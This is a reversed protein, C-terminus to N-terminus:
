VQMKFQGERRYAGVELKEKGGTIKLKLPVDFDEFLSSPLPRWTRGGIELFM